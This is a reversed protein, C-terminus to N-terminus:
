ESASASRAQARQADEIQARKNMDAKLKPVLLDMRRLAIQEVRHVFEAGTEYRITDVGDTTEWVLGPTAEVVIKPWHSSGRHTITIGLSVEYRSDPALTMEDDIYEGEIVRAVILSPDIGDEDEDIELETTQDSM